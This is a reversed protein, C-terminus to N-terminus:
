VVSQRLLRSPLVRSRIGSVFTRIIRSETAAITTATSYRRVRRRRLFFDLGGTRGPAGALWVAPTAAVHAGGVGARGAVTAGVITAGGGAAPPQPDGADGATVL